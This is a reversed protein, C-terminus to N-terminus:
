ERSLRWIPREMRGGEPPGRSGHIEERQREENVVDAGEDVLALNEERRGPITSDV